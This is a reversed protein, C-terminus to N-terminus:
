MATGECLWATCQRSQFGAEQLHQSWSPLSLDCPVRLVPRFYSSSFSLLHSKMNIVVPLDLEFIRTAHPLPLCMCRSDLGAGIVVVQTCSRSTHLLWRDIIWTRLAMRALRAASVSASAVAIADDGAIMRDIVGRGQGNIGFKEIAVARAASAMIATVHVADGSGGPSEAVFADSM